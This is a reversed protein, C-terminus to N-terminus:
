HIAQSLRADVSGVFDAAVSPGGFHELGGELLLEDDVTVIRFIPSQVPHFTIIKMKDEHDPETNLRVTTESVQDLLYGEVNGFALCIEDEIEAKAQDVETWRGLGGERIVLGAAARIRKGLPLERLEQGDFYDGLLTEAATRTAQELFADKLETLFADSDLQRELDLADAHKLMAETGVRDLLLRGSVLAVNQATAFLKQNAATFTTESM